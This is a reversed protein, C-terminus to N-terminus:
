MISGSATSAAIVGRVRLSVVRKATSDTGSTEHASGDHAHHGFLVRGEDVARREPPPIAFNAHAALGNGAERVPVNLMLELLAATKGLLIEQRAVAEEVAAHPWVELHDRELELSRVQVQGHRGETRDIGQKDRGQGLLGGQFSCQVLCQGFLFRKYVGLVGLRFVDRCKGLLDSTGGLLGPGDKERSRHM